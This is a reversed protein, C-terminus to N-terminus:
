YIELGLKKKTSNTFNTYRSLRSVESKIQDTIIINPCNLIIELKEKNIENKGNIYNDLAVHFCSFKTEVIPIIIENIDLCSANELICKLIHPKAFKTAYALLNVDYTISLRGSYITIPFKTDYDFTCMFLKKIIEVDVFNAAIVNKWCQDDIITKNSAFYDIMYMYVDDLRNNYVMIMVCYLCKYKIYDCGDYEQNFIGIEIFYDFLDKDGNSCADYILNENSYYFNTVRSSKIYGQEILYLLFKVNRTNHFYNMLERFSAKDYKNIKLGNEELINFIEVVKESFPMRILKEIPSCNKDKRYVRDISISKIENDENFKICIPSITMSSNIGNCINIKEKWSVMSLYNKIENVNENGINSIFENYMVFFKNNFVIKNREYHSVTPISFDNRIMELSEQTFFSSEEVM